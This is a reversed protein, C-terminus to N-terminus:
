KGARISKLVRAAAREAEASAYSGDSLVDIVEDYLHEQRAARLHRLVKDPLTERYAPKLCAARKATSSLRSCTQTKKKKKTPM